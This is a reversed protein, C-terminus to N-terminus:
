IDSFLSGSKEAETKKAPLWLRDDLLPVDDFKVVPDFQLFPYPSFSPYNPSLYWAWCRLNQYFADNNELAKKGTVYAESFRSKRYGNTTCVYTPNVCAFWTGGFQAFSVDMAFHRFCIVHKEKVGDVLKEKSWIPTIVERKNNNKDGWTISVATTTVLKSSLYFIDEGGMYSVNQGALKHRLSSKLLYKVLNEGDLTATLESVAITEVSGLDVIKRYPNSLSSLDSFTYLIGSKVLFDYHKEKFTDGMAFSLARAAVIEESADWRLKWTGVEHSKQILDKRDYNVRATQIRIPFRVPILNSLVTEKREVKTRNLKEVVPRLATEVADKLEFVNHVSKWFRGQDFNGVRSAFEKQKDERNELYSLSFVIRPKDLEVAKDYEWETVSKGQYEWGYREGLILVYIDAAAVEAMCAEFSNTDVAPLTKDSMKPVCQAAVVAHEAAVRENHLDYITSSIFISYKM